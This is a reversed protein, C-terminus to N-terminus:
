NAAPKFKLETQRLTKSTTPTSAKAPDSQAAVKKSLADVQQKLQQILADKAKEGSDDEVAITPVLNTRESDGKDQAAKMVDMMLQMAQSQQELATKLAATTTESSDSSAPQPPASKNDSSGTSDKNPGSFLGVIARTLSSGARAPPSNPHQQQPQVTDHSLKSAFIAFGETIASELTSSLASQFSRSVAQEFGERRSGNYPTYRYNNGSQKGRGKSGGKGGHGSWQGAHAHYSGTYARDHRGWPMVVPFWVVGLPVVVPSCGLWFDLALFWVRM